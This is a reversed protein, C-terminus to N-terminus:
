TRRRATASTTTAYNETTNGGQVVQTLQYIADYTFSDTTNAPLATRSSRNGVNDVTYSV